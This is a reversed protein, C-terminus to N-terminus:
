HADLDIILVRMGPDHERLLIIALPIDAFFCFGSGRDAKAHHYGGSLNIAWGYQRALDLGLVTGGTAYKMPKLIKEQLVAAPIVALMALEAIEAIVLSSHLSDLYQKSHIKLLEAETLLSPQSFHDAGIGLKSKLYNYIKGYKATQKIEVINPSNKYSAIILPVM